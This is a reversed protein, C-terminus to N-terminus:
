LKETKRERTRRSEKRRENQRLNRETDRCEKKLDDYLIKLGDKEEPKANLWRKRLIKKEKRLQTMIRERRSEGQKKKGTDEKKRRAPVEGFSEIGEEYIAKALKTLREQVSGKM